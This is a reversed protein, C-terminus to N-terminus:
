IISSGSYFREGNRGTGAPLDRKGTQFLRRVQSDAWRPREGELASDM